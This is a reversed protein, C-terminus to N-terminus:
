YFLVTQWGKNTKFRYLIDVHRQMSRPKSKVGGTNESENSERTFLKFDPKHINISRGSRFEDRQWDVRTRIENFKM